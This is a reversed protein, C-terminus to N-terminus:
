GIINTDDEFKMLELIPRLYESEFQSIKKTITELIGTDKIETQYIEM